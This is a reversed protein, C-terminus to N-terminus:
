HKKVIAKVVYNRIMIREPDSCGVVLITVITSLVCVICMIIFAMLTDNHIYYACLCPIISSVAFVVIVNLYVNKLFRGMPIGIMSRLMWLRSIECIVSIVIAVVYVVEPSYGLKLFLYSIPLNLLQLGGVVLQYNRINGTALMATVLPNALSESMTFVLVLRVFNVTHEPVNDLWLKLLYPTTFIIPLSLILLIYFSLRAGQFILKMMYDYNGSAYNKTIQPNIATMFNSTFQNVASNVQVAIGRAANVVPGNFLNILINVGQGRLVASSAGIFNWGAFSFMEKLLSKDWVFHYTCEEFQRKCYVAYIFRNILGLLMLLMAYFVLRDFPECVIVYAVILKLIADLISIYAFASMKEHAIISANYPVTLLNLVFTITSFQFVWNAAVLRDDPIVMKYNLFCIGISELLLIIIIGIILQINISTSFVSNLKEHNGNGINFTIFRSIASSLSASFISFMTVMGGVVNYIGYDEVGLAKLIVRSTYLNIVMMLLMRFYLLMTNKAIRKNNSTSTMKNESM